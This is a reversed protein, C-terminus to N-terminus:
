FASLLSGVFTNIPAQERMDELTERGEVVVRRIETYVEDENVLRGLTGHGENVKTAVQRVQALTENLNEYVAPDNVLRGLTGEGENVKRGIERLERLSDRAEVFVAEDNVLRGLTGVGTNMKESIEALNGLARDLHAYVSDDNVLRGLTGHGEAVAHTVRRLDELALNANRMAAEAQAYLGDDRVLRGLTGSGSSIEEAVERIAALARRLNERNEEVAATLAETIEAAATGELGEGAGLPRAQRPGPDLHVYKGGLASIARVEVKYGERVELPLDMQFQCQVSGDPRLRLNRVVGVDLGAVRVKNGDRLGSVADFSVNLYVPEGVPIKGVVVTFFGLALLATLVLVGLITERLAGISM